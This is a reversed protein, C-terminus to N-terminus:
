FEPSNFGPDTIPIVKIAPAYKAVSDKIKAANGLLCFQLNEERIWQRAVENAKELTVADIRSFYDDVEGRNLEFLEIQSLIAALQDATELSETPFNGKVYAKASALQETTIGKERLRRLITLALDIAEVTTETKTYTNIVIAGPLRDRQIQSSAGYTLGSNVRLEDNLMSTFRGGFLTNVLSLAVRDPHTRHIGPQAIRFYTQTADPKDILLLRAQKRGPTAANTLWAHAEGAPMPAVLKQLQAGFSTPDFDGAAVLIMNRGCYSRKHREVVQTRTISPLTTEDGAPPRGYPHGSGFFFSRFYLSAAQSPNDKTGKAADIRQSLVKKVEADPFQPRLVADVLLDLARATEKAPFEMSVFASQEDIGSGFSAGIFDLQESFQDATRTASGRRLLEATISGLGTAGPPDAEMGGRFLARVTIMPVDKKPLLVMTAGNPLVTKTFPPLKVQAQVFSAVLAAILLPRM